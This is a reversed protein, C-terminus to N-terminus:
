AAVRLICDWHNVSQIFGGNCGFEVTKFIEVYIYASRMDFGHQLFYFRNICSSYSAGLCQYFHSHADCVKLLGPIGQLYFNVLDQQLVDATTWDNGDTINLNHNFEIQCYTLIAEHCETTPAILPDYKHMLALTNPEVPLVLPQHTTTATAIAVITAIIIAGLM